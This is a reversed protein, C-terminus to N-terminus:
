MKSTRKSFTINILKRMAPALEEFSIVIGIERGLKIGSKADKLLVSWEGYDSSRCSKKTDNYKYGSALLVLSDYSKDNSEPLSAIINVIPPSEWLHSHLRLLKLPIFLLTHLPRVWVILALVESRLQLGVCKKM